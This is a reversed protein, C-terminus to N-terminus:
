IDPDFYNNELKAIAIKKTYIFMEVLSKWLIVEQEKLSVSVFGQQKSIKYDQVEGLNYAKLYAIFHAQNVEKGAQFGNEIINKEENLIGLYYTNEIKIIEPQKLELKKM